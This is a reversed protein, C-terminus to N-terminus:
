AGMLVAEAAALGKGCPVPRGLDALSMEIAGMVALCDLTDVFGMTSVRFVKGKLQDQGGAVKVGYQKQLHKVFAEGDLGEPLRVTLVSFSPDAAFPALGVAKCGATM